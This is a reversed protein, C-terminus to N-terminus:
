TTGMTIDTATFHNHAVVRTCACPNPSKHHIPPLEDLFHKHKQQSTHGDHRKHYHPLRGLALETQKREPSCPLTACKLTGIQQENARLGLLYHLCVLSQQAFERSTCCELVALHRRRQMRRAWQRRNEIRTAAFKNFKTETSVQNQLCLCKMAGPGITNGLHLQPFTLQKKM